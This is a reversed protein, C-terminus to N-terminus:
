AGNEYAGEICVKSPGVDSRSPSRRIEAHSSARSDPSAVSGGAVDNDEVALRQNLGGHVLCRRRTAAELQVAGRRYNRELGRAIGCGVVAAFADHQDVDCPVPGEQSSACHYRTSSRDGASLGGLRLALVPRGFPSRLM